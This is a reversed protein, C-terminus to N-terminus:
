KENAFVKLQIFALVFAILLIMVSASAVMGLNSGPSRTSRYIYTGIIETAGGPGGDTMLYVREMQRFGGLLMSLVITKHSNKMLPYLISVLMNKLGAGDILAAELVSNNITTLDATYYMIPIGILYISVSMVSFLALGPEALWRQAMFDAGIFRFINNLTGERYELMSSFVAAIFAIPLMAPIFFLSHLFKRGRFHFGLFVSVLFGFTLGMFIDAGSILFTNLLAKYFRPDTLTFKYNELGVFSPNAFSITIYNFSNRILYYFSYLLFVSLIIILPLIFVYGSLNHESELSRYKRVTKLKVIPNSEQENISDIM